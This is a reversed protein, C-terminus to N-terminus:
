FVRFRVKQAPITNKVTVKQGEETHIRGRNPYHVREIIGEAIDKRKLM